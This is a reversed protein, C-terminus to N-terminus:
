GRLSAGCDAVTDSPPRPAFGLVRKAKASSFKQTRGLLPLLERMQPSVFALARAAWDPLPATPVKAARDGLRDHLVRAVEGFWLPEGMVIFREGAAEPTTMATVHAAALDRVDTINFALRPLLRPRGQLLGRIISVSGAQDPALAPGFIAGPLLTVLATRSGAVADWAAQEALVKSRRYSALGPQEPDTWDSEDIARRLPKAPTCAATSSTMVLREVGAAIAAGLVRRTGDVATAILTDGDLGSMPSAIHLVFRCGALAEPWGADSSLDA